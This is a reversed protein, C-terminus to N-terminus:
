KKLTTFIELLDLTFCSLELESESESHFISIYNSIVNIIKYKISDDISYIKIFNFFGDLIDIVSYGRLYMNNIIHVASALNNNM